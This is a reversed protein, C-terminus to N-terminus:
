IRTYITLQQCAILFTFWKPLNQYESISFLSLCFDALFAVNIAYFNSVNKVLNAHMAFTYLNEWLNFLTHCFLFTSLWQVQGYPTHKASQICGSGVSSRVYGNKHWYKVTGIAVLVTKWLSRKYGECLLEESTGENLKSCFWHEEM